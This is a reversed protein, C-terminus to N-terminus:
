WVGPLLRYRVRARYEAYGALERALLREEDLLRWVIVAALPVVPALAWWSGLAIPVGLMMVLAAAYMPHRVIGYPGTSVLTQEREVAITASTYTNARFVLAVGALGAFVLVDGLIEAPMPVSSGHHRRDLGAVVFVALFALSAISQIIKQTRQGEAIPGAATRRALLAPDTVALYITIALTAVGFVALFAWAQWYDLTGAPIFLAVALAGLLFALGLFAKALV